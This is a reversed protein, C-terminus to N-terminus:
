EPVITVTEDQDEGELRRMLKRLVIELDNHIQKGLVHRAIPTAVLDAIQLGAVNDAKPRFSLGLIRARLEVGSARSTGRHLLRNFEQFLERDFTPGRSEAVILGQQDTNRLLLFFREILYALCYHYPDAAARGHRTVHVDKRLAAAVVTFALSDVLMNTERYFRQRFAGDLLCEFGNRNRAIDSTHLIIADSGFLRRKYQSVAVSAEREHYRQEFVCGALVFVPFQPDIKTLSHDGSEDLFMILM